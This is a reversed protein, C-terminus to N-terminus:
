GPRAPAGSASRERAIEGILREIFVTREFVFDVRKPTWPAQVHKKMEALLASADRAKLSSCQTKAHVIWRDTEGAHEPVRRLEGAVADYSREWYPLARAVAVIENALRQSILGAQLASASSDRIDVLANSLALYGLEAPGHRVAVEDDATILGDRYWGFITGVGVMGFPHLEAARLAGMSASGFVHVGESM